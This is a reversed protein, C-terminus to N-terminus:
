FYSAVKSTVFAPLQCEDGLLVTHKISPVQLPILSECERLQAAEDIVLLKMPYMKVSQLKYASSAICFILTAMRYCFEEISDKSCTPLDLEDLASMLTRLFRVSERKFHLFTAINVNVRTLFEFKGELLYAEKLEEGVLSTQFLFSEFSDLLTMLAVGDEYNRERIFTKPLHTFITSICNRLSSATAIFGERVYNLFSDGDNVNKSDCYSKHKSVCDELLEIMVTQLM